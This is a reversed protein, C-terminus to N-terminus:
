TCPCTNENLLSVDVNVWGGQNKLHVDSSIPIWIFLVIGYFFYGLKTIM